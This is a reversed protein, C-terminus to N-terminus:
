STCARDDVLRAVDEVALLEGALDDDARDAVHHVHVLRELGARVDEGHRRGDQALHQPVRPGVLGDALEVRRPRIAPLLFRLRCAPRKDDRRGVVLAGIDLAENGLHAAARAAASMSMTSSADGSPVPSEGVVNRPAIPLTRTICRAPLSPSPVAYMSANRRPERLAVLEEELHVRVERVIRLVQGVEKAREGVAGVHHDSRAVDPPPTSPQPAPRCMQRLAAREVRAGDEADAHAIERGAVLREGPPREEGDVEIGNARVPVRELDLHGIAREAPRRTTSTGITNTSRVSPCDFIFPFIKRSAIPM